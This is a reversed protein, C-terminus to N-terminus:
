PTLRFTRRDIPRDDLLAEVRWIGHRDAVGAGLELTSCAYPKRAKEVAREQVVAGSPDTFRVRIQDRLPLYRQSIEGWWVVQADGSRFEERPSGFYGTEGDVEVGDAIGAADIPPFTLREIQRRARATLPGEGAFRHIAQELYFTAKHRDDLSLYAMGLRYYVLGVSPDIASAQRYASIADRTRGSQELLEARLFPVRPDYPELRQAEELLALGAEIDGEGALRKAEALFPDTKSRDPDPVSGFWTTRDSGLLLALRTQAERFAGHLEPPPAGTVTIREAGALTSDIRDEVDPHSYLYPPIQVRIDDSSLVIREFFRAMGEPHYGARAMFNSGIEDAETEFERSFRLQLAVNLGESALMAGPEGTAVAAALGGIKAILDPIAAKERMRAYHRGKVHGIEHAVVGALEDLSGAELITGSHLYIYGGPVAFANLSPDVIVRFHYIFPQPEIKRVISQGLDYVFGLVVPDDILRIHEQVQRDFETGIEREQEISVKSYAQLPNFRSGDDQVCALAGLLATAALRRLQRAM